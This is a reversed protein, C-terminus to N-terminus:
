YTCLNSSLNRNLILHSNRRSIQLLRSTQHCKLCSTQMLCICSSTNYILSLLYILSQSRSFCTCLRNSSHFLSQLYRRSSYLPSISLFLSKLLSLWRAKWNSQSRLSLPNCFLSLCKVKPHRLRHNRWKLLRTDKSCLKKSNSVPNNWLHKVGRLQWSSIKPVKSMENLGWFSRRIITQTM